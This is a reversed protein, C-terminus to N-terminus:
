SYTEELFMEAPMDYGRIALAESFTPRLGTPRFRGMWRGDDDRGMVEWVFIDQTSIANGEMGTIETIAVLRRVGDAGREMQIIMDLASAVQERIATVPLEFGAMLVMNEIRSLADRGSNAHVTSMSGDHGTNMAQLMEFAEPGRVEGVIIRDPRMRLSNRLLDRQIIAHKGSLDAPRAEMSIVHPQQLTLEIPDEITVIRESRPIFGSIANLLTTKGTGTGGSILVNLRNATCAGIFEAMRENLTGAGMLDELSLRDKRFKRVTISAHKPTAPPLTINVRSGDALRADVMPSSEDVRRGIPALIRDAVRRVHADDRFRVDSRSLVGDREIYVVDPANVMIEQVTADQLLPEIPGLGLVENRVMEIVQAHDDRHVKVEGDTLIEQLAERVSREAEEPDSGHLRELDINELLLEHIQGVLTALDPRDSPKLLRESHELLSTLPASGRNDGSGEAGNGNGNSNGVTLFGRQPGAGREDASAATGPADVDPVPESAAADRARQFPTGTEVEDASEDASEGFTERLKFFRGTDAQGFNPM